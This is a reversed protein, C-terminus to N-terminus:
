ERGPANIANIVLWIVVAFIATIVIQILLQMAANEVNFLAGPDVYEPVALAAGVVALLMQVAQDRKKEEKDLNVQVIQMATGITQINMSTKELANQGKGVLIEMDLHATEIHSHHFDAVDGCGSRERWWNYNRLM